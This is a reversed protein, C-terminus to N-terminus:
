DSQMVLKYLYMQRHVSQAFVLTRKWTSRVQIEGLQRLLEQQILSIFRNAM